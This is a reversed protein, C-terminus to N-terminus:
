SLLFKKSISSMFKHDVNLGKGKADWNGGKLVCIRKDPAIERMM